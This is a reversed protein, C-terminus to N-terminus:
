HQKSQPTEVEATFFSGNQGLGATKKNTNVGLIGSIWVETEVWIECCYCM